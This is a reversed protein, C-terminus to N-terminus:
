FWGSVYGQYGKISFVGINMTLHAVICPLLSNHPNLPFFRVFYFWLSNAFLFGTSFWAKTDGHLSIGAESDYTWLFPHALAFLLSFFVISGTLLLRGRNQVVLYGRFILEELFAASLTFVGFLITIRSQEAVIDLRYEGSTQLGLLILAGGAAVVISLLPAPTAGPLSKPHPAGAMRKRYDDSWLIAAYVTGGFVLLLLLPNDNM